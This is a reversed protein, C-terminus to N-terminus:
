KLRLTIFYSNLNSKEDMGSCFKISYKSNEFTSCLDNFKNFETKILNFGISKCYEKIENFTPQNSLQYWIYGFDENCYKLIFASAKNNYSNREFAWTMEDCEGNVGKKAEFYQFGKKTLYVDSSEMDHELLYKLDNFTLKQGFINLSSLLIIFLPLLIKIKKM